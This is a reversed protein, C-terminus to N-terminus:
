KGKRLHLAARMVNFGGDTPCALPQESMFAEPGPLAAISAQKPDLSLRPGPFRGQQLVSETVVLFGSVVAMAKNKGEEEVAAAVLKLLRRKTEGPRKQM